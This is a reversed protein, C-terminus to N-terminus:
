KISILLEIGNLREEKFVKMNRYELNKDNINECLTVTFLTLIKFIRGKLLIHVNRFVKVLKSIRLPNNLRTFYRTFNQLSM